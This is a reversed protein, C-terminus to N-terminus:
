LFPEVVVWILLLPAFFTVVRSAFRYFLGSHFLALLCSRLALPVCSSCNVRRRKKEEHRGSGRHVVNSTGGGGGAMTM